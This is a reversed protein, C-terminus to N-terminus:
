CGHLVRLLEVAQGIRYIVIYPAGAVVLEQTDPVRGPRFSWILPIARYRM